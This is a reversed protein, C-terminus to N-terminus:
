RIKGKIDVSPYKIEFIANRPAILSGGDPSLNKQVEFAVSSYSGGLKNYLKVTVVDLIDGVKNLENYIGSISIEEAIFFGEQFKATLANVANNLVDARHAGPVPKIVFDIGMNIIYPDLIDVTDNIMRYQELWTKLNNKISSNTKTLLGFSDESIVYMNLNRKLSDQDKQVSVRKISGYKAPMRYALNEYDAQTVARNQTPFTDFIRRKIEGTSPTSVDGVIPEENSVELSQVIEQVTTDSLITRDAFDMMTSSVTDLAGASVNSNAPNTTRYTVTLTTNAPCIGFNKNKSLRTPDFATDTVYSKGFVDIAVQQPNAVVNSEAANGSGFQLYAIDRGREVIFKRSVLFPKLISPVNDSQYNTNALEKFIMDQALYEVEFYQNGESDFVSIIESINTSALQIRKFREFAGVDVTEQGFHGSVVNGYAKIAYHTPAGSEADVQAVVTQNSPDSFSVNETLVFALGNQSSFTTGRSLTPIYSPDPGMGTTITPVQIYLAVPGFTSPRGLNKYGLVRGHRVVNSYQYATDLFSENVNYDLYLALQDGVYAVADLMMAGFSAESFDQFNEPYFREAMQLLDSRIGEFERHTYNIPLIKKQDDAM